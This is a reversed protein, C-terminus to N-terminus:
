KQSKSKFRTLKAPFTGAHKTKRGAVRKRWMKFGSKSLASRLLIRVGPEKLGFQFHIAEFPTRDEWAREIIRSIEEENFKKM